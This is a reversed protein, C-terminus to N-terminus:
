SMQWVKALRKFFVYTVKALYKQEKQVVKPRRKAVDLSDNLMKKIDVPKPKESHCFENLEGEDRRRWPNSSTDDALSCALPRSRRGTSYTREEGESREEGRERRWKRRNSRLLTHRASGRPSTPRWQCWSGWSWDPRQRRGARRGKGSWDVLLLHPVSVTQARTQEM